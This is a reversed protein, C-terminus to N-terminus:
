VHLYYVFTCMGFLSVIKVAFFKWYVVIVVVVVVLAVQLKAHGAKKELIVSIWAYLSSRHPIRCLTFHPISSVPALIFYIRYLIIFLHLNIKEERMEFLM